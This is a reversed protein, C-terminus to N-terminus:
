IIEEEDGVKMKGEGSKGESGNRKHMLGNKTKYPLSNVLFHQNSMSILYFTLQNRFLKQVVEQVEVESSFGRGEVAEKLSGFLHYDSSAIDPRYSLHEIRRHIKTRKVEEM